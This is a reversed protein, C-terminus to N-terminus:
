KSCQDCIGRLVLFSKTIKVGQEELSHEIEADFDIIRGCIECVFHSHTETNGDFRVPDGPISLKDIFGHQELQSLNRYVTGLSLNPNEKKLSDYIDDATPHEKSSLVEKLIMERQKSFKKM